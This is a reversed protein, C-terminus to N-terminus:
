RFLYTGDRIQAIGKQELAVRAQIDPNARVAEIKPKWLLPDAQLLVGEAAVVTPNLARLSALNPILEIMARIRDVHWENSFVEVRDPHEAVAIKQLICLQQYTTKSTEELRIITDPVGFEALERKMVSALSPYTADALGGQVIVVISDEKKKRSLRGQIFLAAAPIRFSEMVSKVAGYRVDLDNTRWVGRDNWIDGSLVSILSNM